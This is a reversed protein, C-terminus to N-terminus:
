EGFIERFYEVYEKVLNDWSYPKPDPVKTLDSERLCKLVDEAFDKQNPRGIEVGELSGVFSYHPSDKVITKVGSGVMDIASGSNSGPSDFKSWAFLLDCCQMKENLVEETVFDNDMRFQDKRKHSEVYKRIQEEFGFDGGKWFSTMFYLFEDDKLNDLMHRVMIPLQKGTGAIFGMTGIIKKDKPLGYKKRLNSKSKKPFVLAPHPIEKYSWPEELGNLQSNSHIIIGDIMPYMQPLYGMHHAIVVIPQPYKQLLGQLQNPQLMGPEYQVCIVDPNNRIREVFQKSSVGKIKNLSENLRNSYTAIGGRQGLENCQIAIKLDSM